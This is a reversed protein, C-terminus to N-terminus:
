RRRSADELLSKRLQELAAAPDASLAEWDVEGDWDVKSYKYRPSVKAMAAEYNVFAEKAALKAQLYAMKQKRAAEKAVEWKKLGAELLAIARPDMGPANTKRDDLVKGHGDIEKLKGDKEQTKAMVAIRQIAALSGKLEAQLKSGKSWETRKFAHEMLTALTLRAKEIKEAAKVVDPDNTQRDEADFKMYENITTEVAVVAKDMNVSSKALVQEVAKRDVDTGTRLVTEWWRKSIKLKQLNEIQQERM